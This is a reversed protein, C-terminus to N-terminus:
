VDPWKTFTWTWQNTYFVNNVKDYLWIVDDSIRYCPIMERVMIDSEYIKCYYVKAKIKNFQNSRWNDMINFLLDNYWHSSLNSSMTTSNWNIIFYDKSVSIEYITDVTVNAVNPNDYWWISAWIKSEYQVGFSLADNNTSSTRSWFLLNWQTSMNQYSFKLEVKSNATHTHWTDIYQTWSSQIYEVEQYWSPLTNAGLYINKVKHEYSTM